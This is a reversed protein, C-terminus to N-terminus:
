DPDKSRVLLSTLPKVIVRTSQSFSSVAPPRSTSFASYLPAPNPVSASLGIM